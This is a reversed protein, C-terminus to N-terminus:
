DREQHNGNPIPVMDLVQGAYATSDPYYRLKGDTLHLHCYIGSEYCLSPEFSAEGDFDWALDLDPHKTIFVHLGQSPDIGACAPCWFAFGETDKTKIPRLMSHM